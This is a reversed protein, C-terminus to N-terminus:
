RKARFLEKLLSEDSEGNGRYRFGAGAVVAKRNWDQPDTRIAPRNGMARVLDPLDWHLLFGRILADFLNTNLPADMASSLTAPTRDLWVGGIRDDAAAALLLWIGKVEAAAARIMSPDVDARTALVDVARLIDRARMAPLSRGILDARENVLWNGLYPRKDNSATTDRPEIELVVKGAAKEALAASSGDAVLLLAPKRGPGRPVHLTGQIEVGPESQFAIREGEVTRAVPARRDTTIGLGRLYAPLEALPRSQRRARMETRIVEHVQPEGAREGGAGVGDGGVGCGLLAAAAEEKADGKGGALWRIMWANIEERTELPTGHPGPGVFYRVREEAGFLGYWRRAEEYVIRAGAPTFFDGATALILWPKPAAMELFDAHDLGAEVFRPMSMESDPTPGTFLVRLSNLYCAPAAAKIRPDLASVFTTVNGGGSCGAAGIREADVERRSVLYDLARMADFIFYRAVSQGILMAQAGAQLHENACCGAISQGIRADYTQKREGLGLPDYTLAM